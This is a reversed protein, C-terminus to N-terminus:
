SEVQRQDQSHSSAPNVQVQLQVKARLRGSTKELLFSGTEDLAWTQLESGGCEMFVLPNGNVVDEATLATEKVV